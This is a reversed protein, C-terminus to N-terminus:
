LAGGEPVFKPDFVRLANKYLIADSDDKALALETVQGLNVIFNGPMDSGFMIRSAGIMDIAYALEDGRFISGSIDTWVNKCDIVPPLGHYANGGLHAMIIKLEPYRRALKAVNGGLTENPLQGVAKHFAHILVPVGYEIMKEALPFVCEDDCLTSMWLKVGIFGSDEIGHRLEDMASPLEPSIYAYGEVYQPEARKFDAVEDNYRRIMDANPNSIQNLGSVYIKSIGYREIAR